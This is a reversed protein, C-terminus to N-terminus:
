LQATQREIEALEQQAQTQEQESRRLQATAVAVAEAARQRSAAVAALLELSRQLDSAENNGALAAYQRLVAYAVPDGSTLGEMQSLLAPDAGDVYLARAFRDLDRQAADIIAAMRQYKADLRVQKASAAAVQVRAQEIAQAAAQIRALVPRVQEDFSSAWSLCEGGLWAAPNDSKTGWPSLDVAALVAVPNTGRALAARIGAYFPLSLTKVTADLGVSWSPYNRVGHSNFVTSGPMPQSTNLPNYTTSGPTFHGGEAIEWGLVACVNAGTVPWQGAHLLAVAWEGPTAIDPEATPDPAPQASASADPGPQDSAAAGSTTAGSHTASPSPGSAAAAPGALATVALAAALATATVTVPGPLRARARRPRRRSM